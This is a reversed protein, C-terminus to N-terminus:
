RERGGELHRLYAYAHFYNDFVYDQPHASWHSWHSVWPFGLRNSDARVYRHLIRSSYVVYCVDLELFRLRSIVAGVPYSYKRRRKVKM